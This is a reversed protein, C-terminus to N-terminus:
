QYLMAMLRQGERRSDVTVEIVGPVTSPDFEFLPEGWLSVVVSTADAALDVSDVPLKVQWQDGAAAMSPGSGSWVFGSEPTIEEASDVDFLRLQEGMRPWAMSAWREDSIEVVEPEVDGSYLAVVHDDRVLLQRSDDGWAAPPILDVPVPHALATYEGFLTPATLKLGGAPSRSVMEHTAVLDFTELWAAVDSRLEEPPELPGSHASDHVVEVAGSMDAITCPTTVSAEDRRDPPCLAQPNFIWRGGNNGQLEGPGLILQLPDAFPPPTEADTGDPETHTVFWDTDNTWLSQTVMTPASSRPYEVVFEIAGPEDVVAVPVLWTFGNGDSEDSDDVSTGCAAVICAMAILVAAFSSWV